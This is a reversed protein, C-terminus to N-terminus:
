WGDRSRRTASDVAALMGDAWAEFTFAAVDRRGAAGLARTAVPDSALDTLARALDMPQGAPVVRGNRGDRVLGGAAAGVADTALVPVGRHLAENCVLGWPEVFTRTRVSPVCLVDAHDLRRRVEDPSVPGTARVGPLGGDAAPPPGLLLLEAGIAEHIKAQRWAVLLVEVGKGPADRGVYVIRFTEDDAGRAAPPDVWVAPDVAQPAVHVSRAGLGRAHAAVHSGYAAVADADRVIRHLLPRGLLHTPSSPDHWLASWLVFPTGAQRAARWAGPLATRGATGAVVARWRGPEGALRAIRRQTLRHLPVGPDDVSPSFHPARAEFTAVEVPARAALAALAGVREQPVRPTVILIPRDDGSVPSM